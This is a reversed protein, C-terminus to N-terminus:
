LGFKGYFNILKQMIDWLMENSMCDKGVLIKAFYDNIISEIVGSYLIFGFGWIGDECKVVCVIRKWGASWEFRLIGAYRKMVSVMGRIEYVEKLKSVRGKM